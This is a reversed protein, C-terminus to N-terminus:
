WKRGNKNPELKTGLLGHEPWAGLANAQNRDARERAPRDAGVLVQIEDEAHNGRTDTAIVCLPQVGPLLTKASFSGEWVSSGSVPQLYCSLDAFTAQVGTIDGGAWVKAGVRCRPHVSSDLEADDPLLREDRFRGRRCIPFRWGRRM